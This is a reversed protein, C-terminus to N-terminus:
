GSPKTKWRFSAPARPLSGPLFRSRTMSKRESATAITQSATIADALADLNVVVDSTKYTYQEKTLNHGNIALIYYSAKQMHLRVTVPTAGCDATAVVDVFENGPTADLLPRIHQDIFARYAAGRM